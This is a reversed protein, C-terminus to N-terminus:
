DAKTLDRFFVKEAIILQIRARLSEGRTSFMPFKTCLCFLQKEAHRTKLVSRNLSFVMLYIGTFIYNICFNAHASLFGPVLLTKQKTKSLITVTCEATCSLGHTSLYELYFQALSSLRDLPLRVLKFRDRISNPYKLVNIRLNLSPLGSDFGPCLQFSQDM